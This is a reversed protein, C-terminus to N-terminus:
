IQKKRCYNKSVKHKKSYNGIEKSLELLVQDPLNINSFDPKKDKPLTNKIIIKLNNLGINYDLCLQKYIGYSIIGSELELLHRVLSMDLIDMVDQVKYEKIFDIEKKNCIKERILGRISKALSQLYNDKMMRLKQVEGYKVGISELYDIFLYDIAYTPIEHFGYYTENPIKPKFYFDICHMIEHNFAQFDIILNNRKITCFAKGNIYDCFTIGAANSYLKSYTNSFNINEKDNFTKLAMQYIDNDKLNQYFQKSINLLTANSSPFFDFNFNENPTIAPETNIVNEVIDLLFELYTKDMYYDTNTIIKEFNGTYKASPRNLSFKGKSLTDLINYMKTNKITGCNDIMSIYSGLTIELIEKRSKDTCTKLEDLIQKKANKLKQINWM